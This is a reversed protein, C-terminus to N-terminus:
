RGGCLPFSDGNHRGAVAQRMGKQPWSDPKSLPAVPRVIAVITWRPLGSAGVWQFPGHAAGLVVPKVLVKVGSAGSEAQAQLLLQFFHLGLILVDFHPFGVAETVQHGDIAGGHEGGTVVEKVVLHHRVRHQEAVGIGFPDDDDTTAVAAGQAFHQTMGAYFFGGLDINVLHDGAVRLLIERFQALGVVVWPRFQQKFIAHM